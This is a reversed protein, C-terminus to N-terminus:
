IKHWRKYELALRHKFLSNKKKSIKISNTLAKDYWFDNKELVPEIFNNRIHILTKEDLNPLDNLYERFTDFHLWFQRKYYPEYWKNYIYNSYCCLFVWNNNLGAFTLLFYIVPQLLMYFLFLHLSYYLIGKFFIIEFFAGFLIFLPILMPHLYVYHLYYRFRNKPKNYITYNHIVYTYVAFSIKHMKELFLFFIRYQLLMITISKIISVFKVWLYNKFTGFKTLFLFTWVFVYPFLFIVCIFFNILYETNYINLDISHGVRLYRLSNILVGFFAPYIIAITVDLFIQPNKITLINSSGWNRQKAWYHMVPLLLFIHIILILLFKLLWSTNILLLVILTPSCIFSLPIIIDLFITFPYQAINPRYIADFILILVIFLM